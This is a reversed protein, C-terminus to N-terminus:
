GDRLEALGADCEAVEAEYFAIDEPSAPAGLANAAFGNLMTVALRRRGELLDILVATTEDM